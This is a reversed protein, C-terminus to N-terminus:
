VFSCAARAVEGGLEDLDRGESAAHDRTVQALRDVDVVGAPLTNANILQAAERTLQNSDAEHHAVGGSTSGTVSTTM